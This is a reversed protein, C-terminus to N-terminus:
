MLRGGTKTNYLMQVATPCVAKQLRIGVGKVLCVIGAAGDSIMGEAEGSSNVAGVSGVQM